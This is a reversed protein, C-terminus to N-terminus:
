MKVFKADLLVSEQNHAQLFYVGPRLASINIHNIPGDEFNWQLVTKGTADIIQASINGFFDDSNNRLTLLLDSPNPYLEFNGKRIIPTGMGTIGSSEYCGLDIGAGMVRDNGDLDFPYYGYALTGHDIAPSEPSLRFNALTSDASAYIFLPDTALLNDSSVVNSSGVLNRFSEDSPNAINYALNNKFIISKTAHQGYQALLYASNHQSIPAELNTNCVAINNVITLSDSNSVGIEGRWTSEDQRTSNQFTTNNRVTVNVSLYIQIGRGGNDFCLNGEVLTHVDNYANPICIEPDHWDQSCMLDDIIIGNGDTKATNPGNDNAFSINNRVINRVGPEGDSLFGGYISIGSGAHPMLWGNRTIINNEFTLYDNGWSQIGSQGCDHIYCNIVTHHHRGQVGAVGSGYMASTTLTFGDIVIYDADLRFCDSWSNKVVAKYQNIARFTIWLGEFGSNTITISENYIGDDVWVTDGAFAENAAHQITAFAQDLSQGTNNDNGSTSVFLNGGYTIGAFLFLLISFYASKNM